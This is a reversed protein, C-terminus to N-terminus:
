FYYSNRQVMSVTFIDKKLDDSAISTEATHASVVDGAYTGDISLNGAATLFARQTGSSSGYTGGNNFSLNDNSNFIAWSGGSETFFLRGSNSSNSSDEGIKYEKYVQIVM